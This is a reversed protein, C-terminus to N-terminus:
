HVEEPTRQEKGDTCRRNGLTYGALGAIIAVLPMFYVGDHGTLMAVAELSALAIIAVAKLEDM